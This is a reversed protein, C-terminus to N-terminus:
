ANWSLLASGLALVGVVTLSAVGHEGLALVGGGVGVALGRVLIDVVVPVARLLRSSRFDFSRRPDGIRADVHDPRALPFAM